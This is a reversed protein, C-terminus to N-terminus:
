MCVCPCAAPMTFIVLISESGKMAFALLGPVVYNQEADQM